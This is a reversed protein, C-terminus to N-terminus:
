KKICNKLDKEFDEFNLLVNFTVFDGMIEQLDELPLDGAIDAVKDPFDRYLSESGQLQFSYLKELLAALCDVSSVEVDPSLSLLQSLIKSRKKIRKTDFIEDHKTQLYFFKATRSYLKETKTVQKNEKKDKTIRVGAETILDAETLTQLQRYLSKINIKNGTQEEYENKIDKATKNGTRLIKLIPMYLPNRLIKLSIEDEIFKVPEQNFDVLERSSM